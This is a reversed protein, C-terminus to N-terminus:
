GAARDDLELWEIRRIGALRSRTTWGCAPARVRGLVWSNGLREAQALLSYFAEARSGLGSEDLVFRIEHGCYHDGTFEVGSPVVALERCLQNLLVQANKESKANTKLIWRTKM